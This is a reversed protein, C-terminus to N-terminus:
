PIPVCCGTIEGSARFTQGQYRVVQDQGVYSGGPSLTVTWQVKRGSQYHIACRWPNQLAGHGLPTCNASTGHGRNTVPDPAAKVVHAVATPTLAEVHQQRTVLPEGDGAHSRVFVFSVVAVALLPLLLAARFM